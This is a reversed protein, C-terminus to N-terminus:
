NCVWVGNLRKAFAGTGGSACPNAITCDSCYIMNGNAPSGLSSFTTGLSQMFINSALEMSNGSRFWFAAGDSGFFIAASNSNRSVSMDGALMNSTPANGASLTINGNRDVCANYILQDNTLNRTTLIQIPSLGSPCGSQVTPGQAKVTQPKVVKSVPYLIILWLIISAPLAFLLGRFLNNKQKM